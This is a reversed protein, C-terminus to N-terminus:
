CVSQSGRRGPFVSQELSEIQKGEAFGKINSL